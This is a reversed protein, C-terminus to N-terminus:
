KGAEDEILEFLIATERMQNSDIVAAVLESYKSSKEFKKYQINKGVLEASREYDGADNAQFAAQVLTTPRIETANLSVNKRDMSQLSFSMLVIVLVMSKANM